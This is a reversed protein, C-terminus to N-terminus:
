QLGTRLLQSAAENAARVQGQADYVFLAVRGRAFEQAASTYLGSTFFVALKSQAQAVGFIERVPSAGVSGSYHKVQAVYRSSTVDIGGDASARTARADLCGRQHMWAAAFFEAERPDRPGPLPVPIVGTAVLPSAESLGRPSARPVRPARPARLVPEPRVPAPMATHQPLDLGGLAARWLRQRIRDLHRRRKVSLAVTLGALVAWFLLVWLFPAADSPLLLALLVTGLIATPVAALGWPTSPLGREYETTLARTQEAVQGLAGDISEQDHSAAASRLGGGQEAARVLLALLAREGDADDTEDAPASM